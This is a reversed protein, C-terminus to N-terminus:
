GVGCWGLAWSSTFTCGQNEGRERKTQGQDAVVAVGTVGRYLSSVPSIKNGLDKEKKMGM